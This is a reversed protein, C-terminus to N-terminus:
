FFNCVKPLGEDSVREVRALVRVVLNVLIQVVYVVLCDYKIVLEGGLHTSFACSTQSQPHQQTASAYREINLVVSLM